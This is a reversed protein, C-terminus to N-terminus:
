HDPSITITFVIDGGETTAANSISVTPLGTTASDVNSHPGTGIANIASVRYHRIDGASLGTHRYTRNANGTNAVRTTWNTRGNNSVEIKYGTIVSGGSSDPADWSLNIRNDGVATAPSDGEDSTARVQVQYSTNASLNPITTTTGTVNQPGNTFSGSTGQRYQLDYNDIDPGTNDPENWSVTLSTTSGATGSVTPAAPRGPAETVDTLTINM